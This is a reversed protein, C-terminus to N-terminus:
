IKRKGLLKAIFTFLLICFGIFAWKNQKYLYTVSSKITDWTTQAKIPEEIKIKLPKLKTTTDILSDRKLPNGLTYTKTGIKVTDNSLLSISFCFLFSTILFFSKLM